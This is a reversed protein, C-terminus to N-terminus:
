DMSQGLAGNQTETITPCPRQVKVPVKCNTGVGDVSQKKGHSQSGRGGALVWPAPAAEAMDVHGKAATIFACSM